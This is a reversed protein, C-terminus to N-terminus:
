NSWCWKNFISEKKWQINKAEKDFTLHGYTHPSIEADEIIHWQDVLRKLLLM